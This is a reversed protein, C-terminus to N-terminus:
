RPHDPGYWVIMGKRLFFHSRCGILRLVSPHLSVTGDAHQTLSWRPHGEPLLSLQIVEECGCPCLLAAFWLFQGEGAIYIVEPDLKDPLDEVKLTRLLPSQGTLWRRIRRWFNRLWNM